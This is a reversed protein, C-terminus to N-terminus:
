NDFAEQDLKEMFWNKAISSIIRNIDKTELEAEIFKDIEEKMVDKIVARLFTGTLAIDGKGGNLTDFTEQYMQELRWAPTVAVALEIKKQEKIDDVPKLTKVKSNAHSEGKVKFNYKKDKYWGVWVVGEGYGEIGFAQGVPCAKDIINTIEILKNQSLKPNNFDIDIQYTQFEFISRINKDPNSIQGLIEQPLEAWRYTDEGQVLFKISFMFFTKQIESIAIGKQIKKGAWEGYICVEQINQDPTMIGKLKEIFYEKNKMVFEDFGVNDKGNIYDLVNDKSQAWFENGDYCISANTGHLKITGEFSTVPLKILKNYIAVDNEDQGQYQAHHKIDKVVQTFQAISPMKILHKM